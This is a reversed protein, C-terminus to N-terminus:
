ISINKKFFNKRYIFIVELSNALVLYLPFSYIAFNWDKIILLALISNVIGASYIWSNESEPHKWSKILTPIYALLDGLIAFIISISLNNTLVYLIIALLSAFGCILDYSEIKWFANKKFLSFTLVLFPCLGAMFIGLSSLGAGAKLALFTGIFPALMWIFWSVLNPRTSGYLIDKIYWFTALLNVTVGVWIINVPLM